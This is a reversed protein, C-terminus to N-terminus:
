LIYPEFDVNKPFTLKESFEVYIDLSPGFRNVFVGFDDGRKGRDIRIHFSGKARM